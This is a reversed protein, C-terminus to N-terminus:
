INQETRSGERGEGKGCEAGVCTYRYRTLTIAELLNWQAPQSSTVTNRSKRTESSCVNGLVYVHLFYISM